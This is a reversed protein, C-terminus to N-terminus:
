WSLSPTKHLYTGGSLQQLMFAAVDARSIKMKYAPGCSTFGAHYTGRAPGGTLNAPRVITWDLGSEGVIQEQAAHDAMVHRLILPFVIRRYLFPLMSFSDGAGFASLCVLRRVGAQKMANVIHRTGTARIGDKNTIPAGLACLIADQATVARFVAAADAADGPVVNLNGHRQTIKKPARAFATVEAGNALAQAVLQRGVGGTAGFVAIKM